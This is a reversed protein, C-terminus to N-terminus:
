ALLLARHVALHLVLHAWGCGAREPTEPLGRLPKRQARQKIYRGQPILQSSKVQSRLDSSPLRMKIGVQVYVPVQLRCRRHENTITIPLNGPQAKLDFPAEHFGFVLM